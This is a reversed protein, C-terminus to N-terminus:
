KYKEMYERLKIDSFDQIERRVKRLESYCDFCISGIAEVSAWGKSYAVGCRDAKSRRGCRNCSCMHYGAITTM